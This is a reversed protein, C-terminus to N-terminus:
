SVLFVMGAFVKTEVLECTLNQIRGHPGDSRSDSQDDDNEYAHSLALGRCELEALSCVTM